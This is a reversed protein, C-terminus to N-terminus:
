YRGEWNACAMTSNVKNHTYICQKFTRTIPEINGSILDYRTSSYSVRKANQCNGCNCRAIAKLLKSNNM